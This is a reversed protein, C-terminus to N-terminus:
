DLDLLLYLFDHYQPAYACHLPLPQQSLTKPLWPEGQLELMEFPNRLPLPLPMSLSLQVARHHVTHELRERVRVHRHIHGPVM